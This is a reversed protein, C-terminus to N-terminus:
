FIVTADAVTAHPSWWSFIPRALACETVIGHPPSRFTDRYPAAEYSSPRGRETSCSSRRVLVSSATPARGGARDARGDGTDPSGDGSPACGDETPARADGADTHRRRRRTSGDQRRTCRGRARSVGSGPPSDTEVLPACPDREHLQAEVFPACPDPRHTDGDVRSLSAQAPHTQGDRENMGAHAPRTRGDASRARPERKNTGGDVRGRTRKAGHTRAERERAYADTSDVPAKPAVPVRSANMGAGISPLAPGSRTVPVRRASRRTRTSALSSRREFVRRRSRKTPLGKSRASPGARSRTDRRRGIRARIPSSRVATARLPRRMGLCSARRGRSPSALSPGDNRPVGDSACSTSTFGRPM